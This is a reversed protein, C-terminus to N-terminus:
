VGYREFRRRPLLVPDREAPVHQASRHMVTPTGATRPPWLLAAFVAPKSRWWGRRGAGCRSGPRPPVGAAGFDRDGEVTLWSSRFLLCLLLLRAPVARVAAEPCKSPGRITRRSSRMAASRSTQRPCGCALDAYARAPDLHLQSRSRKRTSPATETLAVQRRRHGQHLRRGRDAPRGSQPPLRRRASWHTPERTRWCGLTRPTPARRSSKQERPVGAHSHSQWALLRAAPRPPGSTRGPQATIM